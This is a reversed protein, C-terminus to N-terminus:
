LVEVVNYGLEVLRRTLGARVIGHGSGVVM